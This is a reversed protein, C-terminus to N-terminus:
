SMGDVALTIERAEAPKAPTDAPKETNDATKAPTDPACGDGCPSSGGTKEAKGCATFLLLSTALVFSFLTKM